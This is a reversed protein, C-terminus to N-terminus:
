KKTLVLKMDFSMEYMFYTHINGDTAHGPKGRSGLSSSGQAPRNKAVDVWQGLICSM